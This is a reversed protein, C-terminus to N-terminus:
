VFLLCFFVRPLFRFVLQSFSFFSRFTAQKWFELRHDSFLYYFLPYLGDEDMEADPPPAEEGIGENAPLGIIADAAKVGAAVEAVVAQREFCGFYESSDHTNTDCGKIVCRACPVNDRVACSM